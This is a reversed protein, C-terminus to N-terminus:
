LSIAKCCVRSDATSETGPNFLSLMSLNTVLLRPFYSATTCLDDSHSKSHATCSVSFTPMVDLEVLVLCGLFLCPGDSDSQVIFRGSVIVVVNLVLM